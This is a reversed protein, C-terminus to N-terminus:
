ALTEKVPEEVARRAITFSKQRLKWALHSRQKGKVDSEVVARSLQDACLSGCRPPICTPLTCPTHTYTHTHPPPTFVAFAQHGLTPLFSRFTGVRRTESGRFCPTDPCAVSRVRAASSM